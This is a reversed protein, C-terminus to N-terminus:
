LLSFDFEVYEVGAEELIEIGAGVPVDWHTPLPKYPTAVVRVIGAQIIARACEPCPGSPPGMGVMYLTAGDLAVGERAAQFVGNREAHEIYTYKEPRNLRPEIGRPFTNCAVIITGDRSVICVGIQTSPDPSSEQAAQACRLFAIDSM